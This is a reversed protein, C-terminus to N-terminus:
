QQESEPDPQPDGCRCTTVRAIRHKVPEQPSQTEGTQVPRGNDNSALVLVAPRQDSASAHSAAAKPPEAGLPSTITLLLVPLLARMLDRWREPSPYLFM